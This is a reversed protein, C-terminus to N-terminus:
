GAPTGVPSGVSVVEPSAAMVPTSTDPTALPITPTPPAGPPPQFEAAAPTPTPEIDSDIDTEAKRANLWEQVTDDKLRQIQEDTLPRDPQHDYVKIIHWGFRTQVPDSISGSPLSFAVEAFPQVMANRTFWGLDGGNPATATDTSQDRAIQEFNAGPQNLQEKISRALDETGVLIHAAHVQEAQQGIQAELAGTVKQRAVAPRAILRAYDARSMRARELQVDAFEDYAAESTARAEDPNPTGEETPATTPSANALSAASPSGVPPEAPADVASLPTGEGPLPAVPSAAAAPTAVLPDIPTPSGSGTTPTPSIAAAATQTAWAAREPILTPTPTPTILPANAPAFQQAIYQDVDENTVSLGLDDINKLYVQDDIMRSLTTDATDTSGWVTELEARAQAALGLYQQQQDPQGQFFSAYQTYQQAQEILEFSRVKWYERRRIEAGDVTALVHRPKIIFENALGVALILAVLVGVGTMGLYLQRRRRAERERRSVHRKRIPATPPRRQDARPRLREGIPLRGLRKNM